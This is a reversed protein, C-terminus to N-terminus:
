IGLFKDLIQPLTYCSDDRIKTSGLIRSKKDM